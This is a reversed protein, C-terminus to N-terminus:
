YVAFDTIKRGEPTKFALVIQHHPVGLNVLENDVGDQQM